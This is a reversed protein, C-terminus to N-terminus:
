DPSLTAGYLPPLDKIQFGAAKLSYKKREFEEPPYGAQKLESLTYGADVLSEIPFKAIYLKKAPVPVQKLEKATFKAYVPICDLVHKYKAHALIDKASYGLRKLTPVSCTGIFDKSSFAAKVEDPTFATTIQELKIGAQKCEQLTFGSNKLEIMTYSRALISLKSVGIGSTKWDRATYGAKKIEPVTLLYNDGCLEGIKLNRSKASALIQERSELEDGDDM